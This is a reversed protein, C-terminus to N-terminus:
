NQQKASMTTETTTQQKKNNTATQNTLKQKNKQIQTETQQTHKRWKNGQRGAEVNGVAAPQWNAIRWKTQGATGSKWNTQPM